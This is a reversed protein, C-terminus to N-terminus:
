RTRRELEIGLLLVLSSIVYLSLVTHPSLNHLDLPVFVMALVAFEQLHEGIKHLYFRMPSEMEQM